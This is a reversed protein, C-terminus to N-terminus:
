ASPLPRTLRTATTVPPAEPMPSPTARLKTASPWWTATRSRSPARRRPRRRRARGVRAALDIATSTSTASRAETSAANARTRASSPGTSIRTVLAPMSDNSGSSSMVASVHSRIMATLRVPVNVQTCAATGSMTAAPQPRMTVMEDDLAWDPAGFM